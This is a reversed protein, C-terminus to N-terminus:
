DLAKEKIVAYRGSHLYIEPASNGTMMTPHMLEITQALSDAQGEIASKDYVEIVLGVSTNTDANEIRVKKTM